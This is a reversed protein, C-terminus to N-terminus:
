FAAIFNYRCRNIKHVTAIELILALSPLTVPRHM